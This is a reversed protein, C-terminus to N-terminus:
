SVHGVDSLTTKQRQGSHWSLGSSAKKYLDPYRAIEQTGRNDGSGGTEIQPLAGNWRNWKTYDVLAPTM